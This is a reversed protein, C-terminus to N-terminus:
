GDDLAGANAASPLDDGHIHEIGFEFQGLRQAGGVRHVARLVIRDFSDAGQGSAIADVMRAIPERGGIREFPRQPKAAPDAESM